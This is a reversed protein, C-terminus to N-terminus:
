CPLGILIALKIVPYISSYSEEILTTMHYFSFWSKLHVPWAHRIIYFSAFPFFLDIVQHIRLRFYGLSCYRNEM